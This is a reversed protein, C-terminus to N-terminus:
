GEEPEFRLRSFVIAFVAVALVLGIASAYGFQSDTIMYFMELAPVYTARGPGGQTFIWISAFGQISGLFTFFLLLRFQPMLLPVDIHFFRTLWTAGDISAAEYIEHSISLLGGLYVLLAFISVWPFGAFIISWLATAEDALWARQYLGLGIAQLLQNFLGVNPAYMQKWILVGVIGPVVAPVVFATRYFYQLKGSRVWYTLEAVILPVSLVKVIDTGMILLMNKIGVWFYADAVLLQFNHLGVFKIPSTLNFDTFAYWFATAAPYYTFVLILLMSPALLLYATRARAVRRGTAHVADRWRDVGQVVLALIALVLIGLVVYWVVRLRQLTPGNQLGAVNVATEAGNQAVVIAGASGTPLIDVVPTEFLKQSFLLKGHDDFVFVTGNGDGALVGGGPLGALAPIEYQSVAQYWIVSGDNASIEYVGGRVDGAIFNSQGPIAALRSVEQQITKTWLIKGNGDVEGVQGNSNGYVARGAMTILDNTKFGVMSSQLQKGNRDYLAVEYNPQYQGSGYTVFLGNQPGPSLGSVRDPVDFTRVVHLSADSVVIKGLVDGSAFTKGDPLAILATILNNHPQEAIRHGGRWIEVNNKITVIAQTRADLAVAHVIGSTTTPLATLAESSQGFFWYGVAGVVLTVVFLALALWILVPRTSRADIPQRSM